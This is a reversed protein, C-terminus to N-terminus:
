TPKVDGSLNLLYSFNCNIKDVSYFRFIIKGLNM